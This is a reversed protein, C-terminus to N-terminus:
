RAPDSSVRGLILSAVASTTRFNSPNIQDSDLRIGYRDEIQFILDMLLLSDLLSDELLDTDPTLEISNPHRSRIFELLDNELQNRDVTM